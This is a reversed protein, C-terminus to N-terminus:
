SHINNKKSQIKHNVYPFHNTKIIEEIGDWIKQDKNKIIAILHYEDNIKINHSVLYDIAQILEDRNTSTLISFVFNEDNKMKINFMIDHSYSFVGVTNKAGGMPQSTFYMDINDIDDLLIENKLKPKGLIIQQKTYVKISQNDIEWHTDKIKGIILEM